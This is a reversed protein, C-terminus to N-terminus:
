NEEPPNPLPMWYKVWKTIYESSFSNPYFDGERFFVIKPEGYMGSFWVFVNSFDNPLKEEVSIWNSRKEIWFKGTSPQDCLIMEDPQYGYKAVFAELIEEKREAIEKAREYALENIM